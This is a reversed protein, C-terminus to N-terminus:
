QAPGMLYQVVNKPIALSYLFFIKYFFANESTMNHVDQKLLVAHWL